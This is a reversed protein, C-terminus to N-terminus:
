TPVKKEKVSKPVVYFMQNIAVFDKFCCILIGVKEVPAMGIRLVPRRRVDSWLVAEERDVVVVLRRERQGLQQGILLVEEFDLQVDSIRVCFLYFM